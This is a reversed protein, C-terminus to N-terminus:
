EGLLFQTDLKQNVLVAAEQSNAAYHQGKLLKSKLLRSLNQFLSGIRFSSIFLINGAILAYALKLSGGNHNSCNRIAVAIENKNAREFCLCSAYLRMFSIQKISGVEGMKDLAFIASQAWVTSGSWYRPVLDSWDSKVEVSLSKENDLTDVHEGRVGKGGTSKAAKGSIVYSRPVYVHHKVILLLAVANAMDPSPGPFYFGSRSKIKLLSKRAVVGHYLRPLKRYDLAGSEYFNSAVKEMNLRKIEGHRYKYDLHGGLTSGFFRFKLDPWYYRGVEFCASEIGIAELRSVLEVIKECVADDDGLMCVYRGSTAEISRECNVTVNAESSDHKYILRSDRSHLKLMYDNAVFSNDQVIVEIDQSEFCLLTDVLCSLYSKRDKTPIAFSLLPRNM